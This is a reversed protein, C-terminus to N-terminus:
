PRRAVIEAVARHHASDNPKGQYRHSIEWGAFYKEL